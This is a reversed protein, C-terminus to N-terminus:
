YVTEHCMGALNRYEQNGTRDFLLGNRGLKQALNRTQRQQGYCGSIPGVRAWPTPFTIGLVVCDAVVAEACPRRTPSRTSTRLASSIMAVRSSRPSSSFRGNMGSISLNQPWRSVTWLTACLSHSVM